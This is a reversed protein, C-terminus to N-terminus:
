HIRVRGAEVEEQVMEALKEVAWNMCTGCLFVKPEEGTAPVVKGCAQCVIVGKSEAM